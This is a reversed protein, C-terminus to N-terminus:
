PRVTVGNSGASLNGSPDKAFVQYTYSVGASVNSDTLSTGSPSGLVAGNRYMVYSVSGSNDSAANWALKVSIVVKRGDALIIEFTGTGFRVDEEGLQTYRITETAM